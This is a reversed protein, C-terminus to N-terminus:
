HIYVLHTLTWMELFLTEFTLYKYEKKERKIKMKAVSKVRNIRFKKWLHNCSKKCKMNSFIINIRMGSLEFCCKPFSYSRILRTWGTNLIRSHFLYVDTNFYGNVKSKLLPRRFIIPAQRVNEVGPELLLSFYCYCPKM